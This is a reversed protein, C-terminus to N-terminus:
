GFLRTSFTISYIALLTAISMICSIPCTVITSSGSTKALNFPLFFNSLFVIPKAINWISNFYSYSSEGDVILDEVNSFSSWGESNKAKVQAHWHGSALAIRHRIRYIINRFILIEFLDFQIKFNKLYSFNQTHFTAM